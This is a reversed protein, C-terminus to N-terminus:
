YDAPGGENVDWWGWLQLCSVNDGITATDVDGTPGGYSSHALVFSFGSVTNSYATHNATRGFLTVTSGNATLNNGGNPADYLYARGGFSSNAQNMAFGEADNRYTQGVDMMVASNPYAEFYDNASTSNFVATDQGGHTSYAYNWSFGGARSIYTWGSDWMWALGKSATFTDNGPSDYFTAGEGARGFLCNSYMNNTTVTCNQGTLTAAHPSLTASASDVLDYLDAQDSGGTGNMIVKQIQAPTFTYNVGNLSVTDSGSGETFKFLNNSTIPNVSLTSGTVQFPNYHYIVYLGHNAASAFGSPTMRDELAELRPSVSRSRSAAAPKSSGRKQGLLKKLYTFM